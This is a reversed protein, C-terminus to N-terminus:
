GRPQRDGEAEREREHEGATAEAALAPELRDDVKRDHQRRRDGTKRQQEDETAPAQQRGRQVDESRADRERGDGHDQGLREDRRREEDARCPGPDRADVAIELVGRPDVPGRLECSNRATVTGSAPAARAAPRTILQARASPSNPAVIMNAPLTSPGSASGARQDDVRLELAAVEILRDGRGRDQDQGGEADQEGDPDEM